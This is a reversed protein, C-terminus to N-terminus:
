EESEWENLPHTFTMVGGETEIKEGNVMLTVKNVTGIPKPIDAKPPLMGAEEIGILIYDIIEERQEKDPFCHDICTHMIIEEELIKLMESRKM